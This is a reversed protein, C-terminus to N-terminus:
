PAPAATWSRFVNACGEVTCGFDSASPAAAGSCSDFDVTFLRGAPFPPSSRSLVVRLAYNFDYVTAIANAPKNKVRAAVTSASGSGPLSVLTSRYGLRVTIGTVDQGASASYNVAFTRLPTTATCAGILCDAPCSTCREGPELFGNGCV